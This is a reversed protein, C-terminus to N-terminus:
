SRTQLERPFLVKRNFDGAKVKKTKENEALEKEKKRMGKGKEQKYRKVEKSLM